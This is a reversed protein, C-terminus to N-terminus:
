LFRVSLMALAIFIVVLVITFRFLTRDIGRRTRFTSEGQGGFVGGLGAGRAQALIVVIVLVSVILVAIHILTM